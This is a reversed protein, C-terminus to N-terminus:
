LCQRRVIEQISFDTEYRWVKACMSHVRGAGEGERGFVIKLPQDTTMNCMFDKKTVEEINQIYVSGQM